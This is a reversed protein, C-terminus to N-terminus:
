DEDTKQHAKKLAEQFRKNSSKDVENNSDTQVIFAKLAEIDGEQDNELKIVKALKEEVIELHDEVTTLRGNFSEMQEVTLVFAVNYAEFGVAVLNRQPATVKMITARLETRVEYATQVADITTFKNGLKYRAGMTSAVLIEDYGLSDTWAKAASFCDIMKSIPSLLTDLDKRVMADKEAKEADVDAQLQAELEAIASTQAQTEHAEMLETFKSNAATDEGTKLLQVLELKQSKTLTTEMVEDTTVALTASAFSLLVLVILITKM